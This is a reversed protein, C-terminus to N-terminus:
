RSAIPIIIPDLVISKEGDPRISLRIEIDEIESMDSLGADRIYLDWQEMAKRNAEITTFVREVCKWGNVFIAEKTVNCDKDTNNILQVSLYAGGYNQGIGNIIIVLGNEAEIRIEGEHNEALLLAMRGANVVELIEASDMTSFDPIDACAIGWIMMAGLVVALVKKM